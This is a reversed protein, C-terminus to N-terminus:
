LPISQPFSFVNDPDVARKIQQLRALNACYYAFAWDQRDPDAYNQYAEGNSFPELALRTSMVWARDADGGGSFFSAYQASCFASRHVFATADAAVRNIAGGYADFQITAARSGVDATHANIAAIATQIADGSLPEAYYHSSAAFPTPRPLTGGPTIDGTHCEAVSTHSCGAELMLAEVFDRRTISTSKAGGLVPALVAKAEAASGLYLGAIVLQPTGELRALSTINDPLSPVWAAWAALAAAANAWSYKMVYTTADAPVSHVDFTFGTVVGFSGGGGGRCAWFLDSDTTADCQHVVGDATVLEVARVQDCTLGYARGTLGHGGGLALGAIGVTPCSGAAVAVGSAALTSYVDILAAGAGIAATTGQGDVTVANLGRVDIVIGPCSSWGGYSHGGSRIALPMGQSRAFSITLAVDAAGQVVVIAQPSIDDFRTNQLLRTPDYAADGPRVVFGLVRAALEDLNAPVPITPVTEAITTTEAVTTTTDAITTTTEAITTTTDVITTTEAITTTTDAITTTTTAVETAPV